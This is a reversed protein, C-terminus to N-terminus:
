NDGKLKVILKEFDKIFKEFYLCNDHVTEFSLDKFIGVNMSEDYQRSFNKLYEKPESISMVNESIVLQSNFTLNFIEHNALILAEIEYVNLFFIGKKDVVSNFENFYTKRRSLMSKNPLIADLDRIFIVIDPKESEYEVRLIRKVKQNELNSGNIRNLMFFFNFETYKKELLVQICETDNPAEGVLGIKM